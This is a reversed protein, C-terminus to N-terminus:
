ISDSGTPAFLDSDYGDEDADGADGGDPVDEADSGSAAFADDEAGGDEDQAGFVAEEADAETGADTEDEEAEATEEPTEATRAANIASQGKKGKILGNALLYNDKMWHTKKVNFGDSYSVISKLVASGQEAALVM